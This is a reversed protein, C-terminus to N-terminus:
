GVPETRYLPSERVLETGPLAALRRRAEALNARTDGMNSGLSLFVRVPGRGAVVADAVRAAKVMGAVDHVRMMHAGAAIGLAVTAATAEEREHPPAGLLIAGLSSKRSTGLLVPSGLLRFARLRRMIELNLDSSRRTPFSHLDRHDRSFSLFFSPCSLFVRCFA